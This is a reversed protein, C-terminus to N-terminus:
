DIEAIIFEMHSCAVERASVEYADFDTDTADFEYGNEYGYLYIEGSNDIKAAYVIMDCPKGEWQYLQSVAVIPRNEEEFHYEGGHRLLAQRLNEREAAKLNELAYRIETATM